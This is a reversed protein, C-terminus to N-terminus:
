GLDTYHAGESAPDYTGQSLAHFSGGRGRRLGSVLNTCLSLATTIEQAVRPNSRLSAGEPQSWGLSKLCTNLHTAGTEAVHWVYEALEPRQLLTASTPHSSIQYDHVM